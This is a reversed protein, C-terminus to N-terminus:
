CTKKNWTCPRRHHQPLRQAEAVVDNAEATAVRSGVSREPHLELGHVHGGGVGGAGGDDLGDEALYALPSSYM